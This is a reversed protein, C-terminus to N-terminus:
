WQDLDQDGPSDLWDVVVFYIGNFCRFMKENEDGGFVLVIFSVRTRCTNVFLYGACVLCGEENVMKAFVLM